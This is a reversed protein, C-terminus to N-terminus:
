TALHHKLKLMLGELSYEFSIEKLISQNSRRATWPARLLRRWCWLVFVDMKGRETEWWRRSSDGGHGRMKLQHDQPVAGAEQDLPVLLHVPGLRIVQFCAVGEAIIPENVALSHTSGPASVLPTTTTIFLLDALALQGSGVHPGGDVLVGLGGEAADLVHDLLVLVVQIQAHGGDASGAGDQVALLRHHHLWGM